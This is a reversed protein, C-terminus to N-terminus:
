MRFLYNNSPTAPLLEELDGLDPKKSEPSFAERGMVPEEFWVREVIRPDFSFRFCKWFESFEGPSFLRSNRSLRASSPSEGRTSIATLFTSSSLLPIRALLIFCSIYDSLGVKIQSTATNSFLILLTTMLINGFRCM